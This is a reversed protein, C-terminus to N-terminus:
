KSGQSQNYLATMQAVLANGGTAAPKAADKGVRHQQESRMREDLSMRAGQAGQPAGFAAAQELQAIAASASLDTGFALSAAMDPRIGAAKSGFIRACRKREIARGRAKADAEDGDDDARKGKAKRSKPEDDDEEAEEDDDEAREGDDDDEARKGKAKRGQPKEDDDEAEEERDDDEARGRAKEEDDEAKAGKPKIGLLHAFKQPFSM